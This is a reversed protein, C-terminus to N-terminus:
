ELDFHRYDVYFDVLVSPIFPIFEKIRQILIEQTDGTVEAAQFFVFLSIELDFSGYFFNLLKKLVMM